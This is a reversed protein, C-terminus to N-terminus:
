QSPYEVEGKPEPSAASYIVRGGSCKPGGHERQWAVLGRKQLGNLARYFSVYFSDKWCWAPGLQRTSLDYTVTRGRNILDIGVRRMLQDTRAKGGESDLAALIARQM